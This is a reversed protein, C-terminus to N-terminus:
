SHKMTDIRIYFKRCYPVFPRSRPQRDRSLTFSTIAHVPTGFVNTTRSHKLRRHLLFPKEVDLTVQLPRLLCATCLYCRRYNLCYKGRIWLVDGLTSTSLRPAAFDSWKKFLAEDLFWGGTGEERQNLTRDRIDTFNPPDLWNRIRNVREEVSTNAKGCM